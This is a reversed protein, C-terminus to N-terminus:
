AHLRSPVPLPVELAIDALQAPSRCMRHLTAPWDPHQRLSSMFASHPANWLGEDHLDCAMAERLCAIALATEGRWARAEAIRADPRGQMKDLHSQLAADSAAANGLTHEVMSLTLPDNVAPLRLMEDRAAQPNGMLLHARAMILRAQANRPELRMAEELAQAPKAPQGPKGEQLLTAALLWRFPQSQPRDMLSARLVDVAEDRRGLRTLIKAADARHLASDPAAHLARQIQGAWNRTGTRFRAQATRFARDQKVAARAADVDAQSRPNAAQSALVARYQENASGLAMAAHTTTSAAGLHAREAFELSDGIHFAVVPRPLQELTLPLLAGPTRAAPEDCAAAHPQPPAKSEVEDISRRGQVPSGIKGAKM